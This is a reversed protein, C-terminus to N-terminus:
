TTRESAIYSSATTPLSKLDKVKFHLRTYLEVTTPVSYDHTVTTHDLLYLQNGFRKVFFSYFEAGYKLFM